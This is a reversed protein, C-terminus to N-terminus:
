VAANPCRRTQIHKDTQEATQVNYDNFNHTWRRLRAESWCNDSPTGSPLLRTMSLRIIQALSANDIPDTSVSLTIEVISIITIDFLLCDFTWATGARQFTQGSANRDSLSFFFHSRDYFSSLTRVYAFKQIERMKWWDQFTSSLKFTPKHM